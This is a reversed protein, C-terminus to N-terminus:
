GSPGGFKPDALLQPISLVRWVTGDARYAGAFYKGIPSDTDAQDNDAQDAYFHRMGSLEHVMLGSPAGRGNIVLVRAGSTDRAGTEGLYAGLDIVSLIVGRLNAVGRVWPQAGPVRTCRPVRLIEDIESMASVLRWSGIRFAVGTFEPGAGSDRGEVAECGLSCREIEKLQDFPHLDAWGMNAVQMM